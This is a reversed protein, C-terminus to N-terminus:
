VFNKLIDQLQSLAKAKDLAKVEESGAILKLQYTKGVFCISECELNDPVSQLLKEIQIVDIDKILM